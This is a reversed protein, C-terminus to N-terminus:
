TTAEPKPAPPTAEPASTKEGGKKDDNEGAVTIGEEGLAKKIADWGKQQQNKNVEKRTKDALERETKSPATANLAAFQEKYAKEQVGSRKEIEILEQMANYYRLEKENLHKMLEETKEAPTKLANLIKGLEKDDLVARVHAVDNVSLGAAATAVETRAEGEPKKPGERKLKQAAEIKRQIQAIEIRARNREGPSLDQRTSDAIAASKQGGLQTLETDINAFRNQESKQAQAAEARAADEMKKKLVKGAEAREADLAKKREMYGKAADGAGMAKGATSGRVDYSAKGVSTGLGVVSSGIRQNIFKDSAKMRNAWNSEALGKGVRGLTYSGAAAAGGFALSGAKKSAWETFGKGASGALQKATILGAIMLGVVISYSLLSSLIGQIFPSGPTAGGSIGTRFEQSNIILVVILMFLMFVPAFTLQEFLTSRWKKSQAELQPLIGGLFAIPSTILLILLIVFRALLMAGIVFFLFAAILFLLSSLLLQFFKEALNSGDGIKFKLGNMFAGSLGDIKEIPVGAISATSSKGVEEIAQYLEVTVVNSVDIMVETFFFSFNILLGALVIRPILKQYGSDLGLITKIGIWLLIFIFCMNLVDRILSWALSLMGVNGGVFTSFDLITYTLIKNLFVGAIGLMIGSPMYLVNLGAELLCPVSFPNLGCGPATEPSIKKSSSGGTVGSFNAAETTNQARAILVDRSTIAFIGGLVLTIGLLAGAIKKYSLTSLM